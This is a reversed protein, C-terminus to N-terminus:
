RPSRNQRWNDKKEGWSDGSDSKKSGVGKQNEDISSRKRHDFQLGEQILMPSVQSRKLAIKELLLSSVNYRESDFLEVLVRNEQTDVVKMSFDKELILEELLNDREQDQEM